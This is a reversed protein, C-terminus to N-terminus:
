KKKKVTTTEEYDATRLVSLAQDIMENLRNAEDRKGQCSSIPDKLDVRMGDFELLVRSM